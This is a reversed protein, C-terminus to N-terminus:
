VYKFGTDGVKGVRKLVGNILIPKLALIMPNVGDLDVLLPLHDFLNYFESLRKIDSQFRTGFRFQVRYEGYKIVRFGQQDAITILVLGEDTQRQHALLQTLLNKDNHFFEIFQCQDLFHGPFQSNM